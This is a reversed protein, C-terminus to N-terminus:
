VETTTTAKLGIDEWRIGYNVLFDPPVVPTCTCQMQQVSKVFGVLEGRIEDPTRNRGIVEPTYAFGHWWRFVRPTSPTWPRWHNWGDALKRRYLSDACIIPLDWGDRDVSDWGPEGILSCGPHAIQDVLGKLTTCFNGAWPSRRTLGMREDLGIHYPLGKGLASCVMSLRTIADWPTTAGSLDGYIAPQQRPSRYYVCPNMGEANCMQIFRALGARQDAPADATRTWFAEQGGATLAFRVFVWLGPRKVPAVFRSYVGVWGFKRFEDAMQESGRCDIIIGADLKGPVPKIDDRNIPQVKPGPAPLPLAGKPM